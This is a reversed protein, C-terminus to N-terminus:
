VPQTLFRAPPGAPARDRHRAVADPALPQPDDAHAPDAHRDSVAGFAEAERHMIVVAARDGLIDLARELRGPPLAEVLHERMHVDDRDVARVRRRGIM